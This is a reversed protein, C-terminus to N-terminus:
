EVDKRSAEQEQSFRAEKQDKPTRITKIFTSWEPYIGDVLYYGKEYAQGNIV